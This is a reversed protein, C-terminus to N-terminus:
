ILLLQTFAETLVFANATDEAKNRIGYDNTVLWVNIGQKALAETKELIVLDANHEEQVKRAYVVTCNGDTIINNLPESGDFVLTIELFWHAKLKAKDILEKSAISFANSPSSRNIINQWHSNQQLIVNCADVVLHIKHFNAFHQFLNFVLPKEKIVITDSDPDPQPTYTNKLQAIDLHLAHRESIIEKLIDREDNLIIGQDANQEVLKALAELQKKLNDDKVNVNLIAAHLQRATDSALPQDDLEIATNIENIQAEIQLKVNLIAPHLSISDAVALNIDELVKDLRVLQERCQSKLGHKLDLAKQEKLILQSTAILADANGKFRESNTALKLTNETDFHKKFFQDLHAKLERDKQNLKVQTDIDSNAITEKLLAITKKLEDQKKNAQEIEAQFKAKLERKEKRERELRENLRANVGPEPKTEAAKQITQTATAQGFLPPIALLIPKLDIKDREKDLSNTWITKCRILRKARANLKEKSSLLFALVLLQPSEAQRLVTRWHKDLWNQDLIELFARTPSTESAFKEKIFDIFFDFAPYSSYSRLFHVKRLNTPKLTYGNGEFASKLTRNSVVFDLLDKDPTQNLIWAVFENCCYSNKRM